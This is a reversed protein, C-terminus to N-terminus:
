LNLPPPEPPRPLSPSFPLPEPPTPLTHQKKNIPYLPPPEPPRSLVSTKVAPVIIRKENIKKEYEKEQNEIKEKLAKQERELQTVLDKEKELPSEKKPLPPPLTQMKTMDGTMFYGPPFASGPLTAQNMFKEETKMYKTKNGKDYESDDKIIQKIKKVYLPKGKFNLEPYKVALISQMVNSYITDPRNKPNKVENWM